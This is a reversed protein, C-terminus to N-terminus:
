RAGRRSAGSRPCAGARAGVGGLVRADGLAQQGVLLLAGLVHHEDVEPAVVEAAHALVPETCTSVNM